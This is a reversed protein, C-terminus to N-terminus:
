YNWPKANRKAAYQKAQKATKYVMVDGIPKSTKSLVLQYGSATKFLHSYMKIDGNPQQNLIGRQRPM